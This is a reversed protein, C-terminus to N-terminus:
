LIQPYAHLMKLISEQCLAGCNVPFIMRFFQLFQAEGDFPVRTAHRGFYEAEELNTIHISDLLFPVSMCHSQFGEDRKSEQSRAMQSENMDYM